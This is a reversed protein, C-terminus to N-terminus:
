APHQNAPTGVRCVQSGCLEWVEGNLVRPMDTGSLLALSARIYAGHSVVITSVPLSAALAALFDAGRRALEAPSEAGPVVLGPWRAHAEFVPLGEAPGFDRELLASDAIPSPLGLEAAIIEATQRTRLLPSCIVRGWVSGAARASEALLSAAELAQARGTQNLAVDTRGQIRRAINWDTEGHRVIALRHHAGCEAAGPSPLTARSM